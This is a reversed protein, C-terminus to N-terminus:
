KQPKALLLDTPLFGIDAVVARGWEVSSPGRAGQCPTAEGKEKIGGMTPIEVSYKPLQQTFEQIIQQHHSLKQPASLNYVSIFTSKKGSLLREGLVNEEDATRLSAPTPTLHPPSPPHCATPRLILNIQPFLCPITARRSIM